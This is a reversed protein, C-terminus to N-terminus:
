LAAGGGRRRWLVNRSRLVREARSDYCACGRRWLGAAGVRRAQVCRPMASGFRATLSVRPLPAHTPPYPWEQASNSVVCPGLLSSHLLHGYGAQPSHSLARSYVETAEKEMKGLVANLQPRSFVTCLVMYRTWYVIPAVNLVLIDDGAKTEWAIQLRCAPSTTSTGQFHRPLM